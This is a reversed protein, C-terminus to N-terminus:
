SGERARIEYFFKKAFAERGYRRAADDCVSKLYYLESKNLYSVRFAIYSIKLKGYKKEDWSKRVETYFYEILEGRESRRSKKLAAARKNGFLDKIAEM